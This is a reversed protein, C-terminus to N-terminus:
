AGAAQPLFIRFTTGLGVESELFVTGGFQKIIGDVISLGLGTGKGEAKTTFFPEFIKRQLEPSMGSGTDAVSILVYRGPRLSAAGCTVPSKNEMEGTELKLKGGDAMADRANVALNMIVQELQVPDARVTDNAAGPVIQLDIRPGLLPVLMTSFNHILANVRVDQLETARKRSFALLQRTMGVAKNTAHELDVVLKQNSDGPKTRRTLLSAYGCVVGLINNFDHAIGSSFRGLMEMKQSHRVQEELQKRETLDRLVAVWLRKGGSLSNSIALEVPLAAKDARQLQMELLKPFQTTRQLTELVAADGVFDRLNRGKLQDGALDFMREAVSNTSVIFGDHDLVLVADPMSSIIFRQRQEAERLEDEMQKRQTIDRSVSQFEHTGGTANFIRRTTCQQTTVQGSPSVLRLDYTVSPAEPPMNQFYSLPIERDEASLMPLYKTGILEEKPRAHFKCYAENVFTLTGDEKFRWVMETQDDLVGRYRSESIALDRIARAKEMAASALFMNLISLVSTYTGLLVLTDRMSPLVFPGRRELTEILAVVTILLTGTAAGRQGFRLCGWVLFPVPLYAMPYDGVGQVYWSRFSLLAALVLGTFCVAGELPSREQWLVPPHTAWVLFFPTVILTATATAVWWPLAVDFLRETMPPYQAAFAAANFLGNLSTGLVCGILVFGAVDHVSELSNRFRFSRKLLHVALLTGITNGAIQAAIRLPTSGPILLAFFLAGAAVGPWYQEGCLLVAALALGFPPWVLPIDDSKLAISKAAYGCLCYLGVLLVFKSTPRFRRLWEAPPETDSAPRLALSAEHPSSM